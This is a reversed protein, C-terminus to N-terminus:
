RDTSSGVDTAKHKELPELGTNRPFNITKLKEMRAPLPPTTRVGLVLSRQIRAHIFTMSSHFLTSNDALPANKDPVASDAMPRMSKIICVSLTTNM